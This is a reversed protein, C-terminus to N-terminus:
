LNEEIYESGISDANDNGEMREQDMVIYRQGVTEAAKNETGDSEALDLGDLAKNRNLVYFAHKARPMDGASQQQQLLETPDHLEYLINSSLPDENNVKKNRNLYSPLLSKQKELYVVQPWRQQHKKNTGDNARVETQLKHRINDLEDYGLKLAKNIIELVRFYSNQETPAIM